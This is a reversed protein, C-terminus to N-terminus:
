DEHFDMKFYDANQEYPEGKNMEDKWAIEIPPFFEMRQAENVPLHNFHMSKKDGQANEQHTQKTKSRTIFQHMGTQTFLYGGSQGYEPDATQEDLKKPIRRQQPFPFPKFGSNM